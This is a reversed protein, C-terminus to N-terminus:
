DFYVNGGSDGGIEMDSITHWDLLCSESNFKYFEYEEYKKEMGIFLPSNKVNIQQIEM